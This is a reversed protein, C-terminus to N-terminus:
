REGKEAEKLGRSNRVDCMHFGCKPITPFTFSSSSHMKTFPKKLSRVPYSFPVNDLMLVSM